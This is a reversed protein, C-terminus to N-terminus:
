RMLIMKKTQSANATVLTYYYVGSAAGSAKWPISYEGAAIEGKLLMAVERGLVDSIKLTAYGSSPVDFRILTTPNFPNPYNQYLVCMTPRQDNALQHASASTEYLKQIDQISLSYNYIRIEDLVGEFNYSTNTPLVQGITLDITTTLITGSFVTFADLEGNLYIEFDSGNYVATVYYYTNLALKTRSDLDKIGGSSKVTWRVRQNTISIKWRNEWNGHSIPYAEREFFTGVKMWFSVTIGNQFNLSPQNPVRVYSDIGNFSYASNAKGARDSVLAANQVTGNNGNGSADHADGSFPYYAVLQGTQNKTFDRVEICVSDSTQGGHGNNVVCKVYYNGEIFPATWTIASDGGGIVGSVSSWSFSLAFANSDIASCIIKTTAGLDIKGPRAKCALIVPPVIFYEVVSVSITLSDHGGHNDDVECTIDYTGKVHPASWTIQSGVGSFTGSTATWQYALTDNNRDSATCYVESNAGLLMESKEPALGKIRPPYNNITKGSRYDVVVGNVLTRDLDYTVAGGAPTIIVVVAADAPISISILGSVSTNLFTNSVADYIDDAGGGVNLSVSKQVGYPNYFLYTPYAQPHFYDTKLLDLKLIGEVDTTDIIGGFIGVHSSGYLALNTRGWGGSIADGTAYPSVGAGSQRLAEHAITSHPDYQHSWEESDQNEDPLYNPYLLRAANAANLMWKGIARAFRDDYRVMPVLMGAQEFTNMTFAYDNTGNVEGILGSCDYSGWKGVIAGWQRLPGVDFCWNVLKPIDYTTGIEANLRAAIYTGYSLQLEYAPNTSLDNLFEMAWEAGMRYRANGTKVYANYLLWAIAGSAEPEHVGNDNAKMTSLSWARHDMNPVHWPAANGGMAKVSQLWRDAITTFQYNFDGTGPYQSYLEYFFVNPMTDYWWDDGSTSSPHNLYVNEAARRNFYEECMLVWNYVNQNSKDVGALTASVVAPIVNIAESSHPSTTGVVTHLGFSNHSPYNVTNTNSWVLPLDQGTRNFDFVLSDYGLAVQKWNRMQYPQPLNPMQEIRSVTIQQASLVSGLFLLATMRNVRQLM